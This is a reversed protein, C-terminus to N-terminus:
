DTMLCGRVSDDLRRTVSRCVSTKLLMLSYRKCHIAPHGSAPDGILIWTNLDEQPLVGRFIM